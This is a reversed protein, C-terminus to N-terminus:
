AVFIYSFLISFPLQNPNKMLESNAEKKNTAVLREIIGGYRGFYKNYSL